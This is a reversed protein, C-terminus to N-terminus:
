AFIMDAFRPDRVDEDRGIQKVPNISLAFKGLCVPMKGAIRVTSKEFFGVRQDSFIPLLVVPGRSAIKCFFNLPVRCCAPRALEM